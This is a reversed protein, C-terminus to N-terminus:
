TEENVNCSSLGKARCRACSPGNKNHKFVACDTNSNRCASCGAVTSRVTGESTELILRINDYKRIKAWDSSAEKPGRARVNAVLQNWNDQSIYAYHAQDQTSPRAMDNLGRNTEVERNQSIM